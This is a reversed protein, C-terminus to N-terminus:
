IKSAIALNVTFKGGVQCSRYEAFVVSFGLLSLSSEPVDCAEISVSLEVSSTLLLLNDHYLNSICM